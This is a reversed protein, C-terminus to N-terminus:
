VIFDFLKVEYEALDEDEDKKHVKTGRFFHTYGSPIDSECVGLYDKTLFIYGLIYEGEFSLDIPCVSLIDSEHIKYEKIKNLINKTLKNDKM